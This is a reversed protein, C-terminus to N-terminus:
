VAIKESTVKEMERKIHQENALKQAKAQQQKQKLVRQEEKIQTAEEGEKLEREAEEILKQQTEEVKQEGKMSKAWETCLNFLLNEHIPMQADKIIEQSKGAIKMDVFFWLVNFVIFHFVPGLIDFFIFHLIDDFFHKIALGPKGLYKKVSKDFNEHFDNWKSKILNKFKEKAQKSIYHTMKKSLEKEVRKNGRAIEAPTKKRDEWPKPITVSELCKDLLETMTTQDLKKRVIKGISAATMNKIKENNFVTMTWFDPVLEVMEKILRGLAVNLLEQQEDLDEKADNVDVGKDIDEVAENLADITKLMLTNLMLTNLTGPKEDETVGKFVSMMVEPLIKEQFLNWFEQRIPDPVDLDKPSTIGAIELIDKAFPVFFEKLRQNDKDEKTAGKVFDKTLAPHLMNTGYNKEDAFGGHMDRPHVNHAPYMRGKPPIQNIRKVHDSILKIFGISTNLLFHNQGNKDKVSQKNKINQAIGSFIKLIMGNSYESIAKSTKAMEPNEGLQKINKTLLNNLQNQTDNSLKKVFKDTAKMAIKSIDEPHTEMYYPVFKEIFDAVKQVFKSGSPVIEDLKKSNEPAEERGKNLQTYMDHFIVPLLTTKLLDKLPGRFIKPVPLIEELNEGALALFDEALPQYLKRIKLEKEEESLKEDNQLKKLEADIVPIKKNLFSLVRHVVNGVIKTNINETRDDEGEVKENKAITAFVKFLAAKVITESYEWSKKLNESNNKFFNQLGEGLQETLNFDKLMMANNLMESIKKKDEEAFNKLIRTIDKAFLGCSQELEDVVKGVGSKELVTKKSEELNELVERYEKIVADHDQNACAVADLLDIKLTESDSSLNERYLYMDEYFERLLEPIFEDKVLAVLPNEQLNAKKLIEDSLKKFLINLQNNRDEETSNDTEKFTKDITEKNETFFNELIEHVNSMVDPVINKKSHNEEPNKSSGLSALAHIIISEINKKAYSWLLKIEPNDSTSIQVLRDGVWDELWSRNESGVLLKSVAAKGITAANKQIIEPLDRETKEALFKALRELAAGGPRELEESDKKTHHPPQYTLEYINVFLDPIAEESLEQWVTNSLKGLELDDEKNPLAIALFEDSIPRFLKRFERNRDNINPLNKIKQFTDQDVKKLSNNAIKILDTLVQTPLNGDFKDTLERKTEKVLNIVVKLVLVQFIQTTFEDEKNIFFKFGPYNHNLPNTNDTLKTLVISKLKCSLAEAVDSLTNNGTLIQLEDRLKERTKPFNTNGFFYSKIQNRTWENGAITEVGPLYLTAANALYGRWGRTDDETKDIRRQRTEQVEFEIKKSEAPDCGYNSWDPPPGFSWKAKPKQSEFAKKERPQNLIQSESLSSVKHTTSEESTGSWWDTIRGLWGKDQQPPTSNDLEESKTQPGTVHTM